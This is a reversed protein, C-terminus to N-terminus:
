PTAERGIRYAAEEEALSAYRSITDRFLDAAQVPSCSGPEGRVWVLACIAGNLFERRRSGYPEADRAAGLAVLETAYAMATV